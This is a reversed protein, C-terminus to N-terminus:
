KYHVLLGMEVSSADFLFCMMKTSVKLEEDQKKFEEDLDSECDPFEYIHFDNSAIQDMILAKM